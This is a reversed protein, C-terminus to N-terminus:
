RLFSKLKSEDVKEVGDEYCDWLVAQSDKIMFKGALFDLIDQKGYDDLHTGTEDFIRYIHNEVLEVTLGEYRASRVLNLKNM